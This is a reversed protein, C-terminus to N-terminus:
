KFKPSFNNFSTAISKSNTFMNNDYRKLRYKSPLFSLNPLHDPTYPSVDKKIPKKNRNTLIPNDFSLKVLAEDSGERALSQNRSRYNNLESSKLTSKTDSRLEVIKKIYKTSKKRTMYEDKKIIDPFFYSKENSKGAMPSQKKLRISENSYKNMGNNPSKRKAYIKMYSSTDPSCAPTLIIKSKHKKPKPYWIEEFEAEFDQKFNKDFYPHQLLESSSPRLEQELKLCNKLFDM